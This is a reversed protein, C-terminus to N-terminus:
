ECKNGSVYKNLFSLKSLIKNNGNYKIEMYLLACIYLLLIFWKVIISGVGLIYNDSLVQLIYAIITIGVYKVLLSLQYDIKYYYQGLAYSVIMIVANSVVSAIACAMFGYSVAFFYIIISTISCGIISLIAGWYTRDTVKYWVALNFYVGFMLQGAMVYPVVVLGGYYTHPVFHKLIDMSTMVCMFIFLTSIVYYKMSLSYGKKSSKPDNKTQAFIFPDYAYRFAQTFLVMVLALKYCASYIGLHYNGESINDFMKPFLIKDAQNNFSGALGLLLIPWSYSVMKKLISKDFCVGAKKIEPMLMLLQIINAGLNIVFLWTLRNEISLFAGESITNPFFYPVVVFLLFTSLVTIGIFSMRVFFFRWPRCAYRLYALPISMFADLAVVIGMIIIYESHSGIDIFSGIQPLFAWLLFVFLVSTIGLSWLATSYVKKPEDSKNVFRFFGTEMGYTLVIMFLATWAYINSMVGFQPILLIRAYLFTLMWNLFKGFVTSIGYVMTDKFLSKM